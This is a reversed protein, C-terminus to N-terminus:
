LQHTLDGDPYESAPHPEIRGITSSRPAHGVTSKAKAILRDWKERFKEGSLINGRWFNDAQCWDILWTIEEWTHKDVEHLLRMSDAWRAAAERRKSEPARALTSGPHNATM